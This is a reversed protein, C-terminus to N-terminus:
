LRDEGLAWRAECHVPGVLSYPMKGGMVAVSVLWLRFVRGCGDIAIIELGERVASGTLPTPVTNAGLKEARVKNAGLRWM